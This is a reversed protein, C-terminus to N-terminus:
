LPATEKRESERKTAVNSIKKNLASIVIHYSHM